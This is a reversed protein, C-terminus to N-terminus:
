LRMSQAVSILSNISNQMNQKRDQIAKYEAQKHAEKQKAVSSLAALGLGGAIAYPNGSAMAAGTIGSVAADEVSGGAALKSAGASLGAKSTGSLASSDMAKPEGASVRKQQDELMKQQEGFLSTGQGFQYAM